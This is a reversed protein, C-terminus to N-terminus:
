ISYCGLDVNLVTAGFVKALLAVCGSFNNNEWELDSLDVCVSALKVGPVSSCLAPPNHASVTEDIITQGLVNLRVRIGYEDPLVEGLVCADLNVQEWLVKFSLSGCCESTYGNVSCSGTGSPARKELAQDVTQLQALDHAAKKALDIELLELMEQDDDTLLAREDPNMIAFSAVTAVATALCLFTVFARM